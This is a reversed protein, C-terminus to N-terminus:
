RRRRALTGMAGLIAMSTPEPVSLGNLVITGTSISTSTVGFSSNFAGNFGTVAVYYTGAVLEGSTYSLGSTYVGNTFDIDDNTEILAGAASYLAMETDDSFGGSNASLSSGTTNLDIAGSGSYNFSYWLVQSAALPASTSGGLVAPTAAPPAISGDGLTISVNNWTAGSDNFAQAMLFYLAGNTPATYATDFFGTWSLTAPDADDFSNTAAGPDVYFTTSSAVTSGNTLAWIAESSWADNISSGWDMTVTYSSYTGAPIGSLLLSEEGLGTGAENYVTQTFSPLTVSTERSSNWSGSHGKISGSLSQQSNRAGEAVSGVISLTAVALVLSRHM